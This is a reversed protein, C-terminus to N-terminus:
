VSRYYHYIKVSANGHLSGSDLIKLTCEENLPIKFFPDKTLDISNILDSEVGLVNISKIYSDEYLTSLEISSGLGFNGTIKCHGYIKGTTKGILKFEPNVSVGNFNIIIGAPLQGFASIDAEYQESTTSIFVDTGDLISSDWRFASVGAGILEIKVPKPLFWPSLYKFKVPCELYGVKNIENKEISALEVHAYYEEALPKYIFYLKSAKVCWDIFKYYTSYSDKIFNIKASIENQSYRKSVMKFFGENIDAFTDSFELGLGEPETLFIGTENNLALREGSENQLYFLRM